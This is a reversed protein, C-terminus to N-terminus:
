NSEFETVIDTIQSVFRYYVFKAVKITEGYKANDNQQAVHKYNSKDHM